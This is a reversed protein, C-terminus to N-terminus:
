HECAPQDSACVIVLIVVSQAAVAVNDSHHV